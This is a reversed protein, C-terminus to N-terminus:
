NLKSTMPNRVGKYGKLFAKASGFSLFMDLRVPIHNTDDTVYFRILEHNKGNEREIFSFVLCRFKQKTDEIEFTEKGQYKLWSNSLRKADSIPMPINEGVKLKSADFNRAKLFISMMDYVCDQYESEKWVHEGSNEIRHQKLHCNTKPYSYWIEDVYYRDGERAGKRFYLPALEESCYSLLTDRLTFINDLKSSSRTTLSSRWAPKGGYRSKVTSMSATGVKVWVFKWNFYLDYSLYEGSKFATNEIGCQASATLSSIVITLILVINKM